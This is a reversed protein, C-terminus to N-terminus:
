TREREFRIVVRGRFTLDVGKKLVIYFRGVWVPGLETYIDVFTNGINLYAYKVGKLKVRRYIDMLNRWHKQYPITAIGEDINSIRIKFRAVGIYYLSYIEAMNNLYECIKM